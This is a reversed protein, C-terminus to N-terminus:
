IHILNLLVKLEKWGPNFPDLTQIRNYDQFKIIGKYKDMGYQFEGTTEFASKEFPKGQWSTIWFM